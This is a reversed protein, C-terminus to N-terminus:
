VSRRMHELSKNRFAPNSCNIKSIRIYYLIIYITLILYLAPSIIHIFCRSVTQSKNVTFASCPQEVSEINVVFENVAVENTIDLEAVDTFFYQHQSRISKQRIHSGLQGNSGTVLITM